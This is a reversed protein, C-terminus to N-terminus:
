HFKTSCQKGGRIVIVDLLDYRFVSKVKGKRWRFIGSFPETHTEFQDWYKRTIYM